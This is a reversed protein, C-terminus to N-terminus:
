GKKEMWIKELEQMATSSIAEKASADADEAGTRMFHYGPVYSIGGGKSRTLFGYEMSAPYYAKDSKGGAEGPNKIPRQLVDNYARDFTIEYVKKGKKSSRESTRKIARKLNGTEGKPASERISRRVISAGKGAAKTAVKPPCGGLDTLMAEFAKIDKTDFSIDAM